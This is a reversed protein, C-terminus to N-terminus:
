DLEYMGAVARNRAEIGGLAREMTTRALRARLAAYGSLSSLVFALAFVFVLSAM